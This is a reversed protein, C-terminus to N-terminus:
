GAAASLAIGRSQLQERGGDFATLVWPGDDFLAVTHEWHAALSGDATVITWGDDLQATDPKGATLMPEIALAMGATLRPGTGAHGYNLIHPDMHMASGIGHGGFGEVIGWENPRGAGSGDVSVEIAHSVDGLQAGARAQALGDWLAKECAASLASAEDDVDGVAVTIAADGHWGDIIAGFDISILDGGVLVDHASPIGHVVRDNVSACIVGPYPGSGIDYHLFNSKAGNAALIERAIMDLDLTSTGPQCAARMAELASAVVLGAARMSAFQAPSKLEFHNRKRRM